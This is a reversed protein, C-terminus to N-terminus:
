RVKDWRAQAAQRAIESRREASLSEARARGGKLGGMRGLEVAAQNKEKPPRPNDKSVNELMRFVTDICGASEVQDREEM